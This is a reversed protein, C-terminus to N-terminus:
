QAVATTDQTEGTIASCNDITEVTEETASETQGAMVEMMEEATMATSLEYTGPKCDKKYESLLYQLAFLRGDRVLGKEQLTNGIETASMDSTLTVTIKRGEGSSIAPETFYSLWLRLMYVSRHVGSIGRDSCIGSKLYRGIRCRGFKSGEHTRDKRIWTIRM